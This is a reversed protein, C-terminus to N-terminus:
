IAQGRGSVVTVKHGQATYTHYRRDRVGQADELSDTYYVLATDLTGDIDVHVQWTAHVHDMVIPISM